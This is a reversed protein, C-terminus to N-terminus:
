YNFNKIDELVTLANLEDLKSQKTVADNLYKTEIGEIHSEVYESKLEDEIQRPTFTPRPCNFHWKPFEVCCSGAENRYIKTTFRLFQISYPESLIGQDSLYQEILNKM